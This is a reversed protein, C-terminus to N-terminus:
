KESVCPENTECLQYAPLGTSRYIEMRLHTEKERLTQLRSSDFTIAYKPADIAM